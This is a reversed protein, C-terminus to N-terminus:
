KVSLNVPPGVAWLRMSPHLCSLLGSFRSRLPSPCHTQRVHYLVSLPNWLNDQGRGAGAEVSEWPASRGRLGSTQSIGQLRHSQFPRKSDFKPRSLPFPSLAPFHELLLRSCRFPLSSSVGRGDQSRSILAGRSTGRSADAKPLRRPLKPEKRCNWSPGEVGRARQEGRGVGDRERQAQATRCTPVLEQRM